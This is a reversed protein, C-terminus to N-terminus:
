AGPSKKKRARPKKEPPGEDPLQERFAADFARVAAEPSPGIAHVDAGIPADGGLWCCWAPRGDPMSVIRLKPRLISSPQSLRENLLARSQQERLKLSLVAETKEEMSNAKITWRSQDDIINRLQLAASAYTSSAAERAGADVDVTGGAETRAWLIQRAEAQAQLLIGMQSITKEEDTAHLVVTHAPDTPGEPSFTTSRM